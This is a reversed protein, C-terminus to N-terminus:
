RPPPVSYPLRSVAAAPLRELPIQELRPLPNGPRRRLFPLDLEVGAGVGLGVSIKDKAKIYSISYANFSVIGIVVFLLVVLLLNFTQKKIKIGFIETDM